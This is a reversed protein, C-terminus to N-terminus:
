LNMNSVDYNTSLETFIDGNKEFSLNKESANM